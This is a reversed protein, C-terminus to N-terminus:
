ASKAFLLNALEERLRYLGSWVQKVDVQLLDAIAGRPLGPNEVIAKLLAARFHSNLYDGPNNLILTALAEVERDHLEDPGPQDHDGLPDTPLKRHERRIERAQEIVHNRACTKLFTTLTAGRTPDFEPISEALLHAVCEQAADEREWRPLYQKCLCRITPELAAIVAATDQGM